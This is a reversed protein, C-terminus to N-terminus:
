PKSSRTSGPVSPDPMRDTGLVPLAHRFFDLAAQQRGIVRELEGIRAQATALAQGQDPPAPPPTPALAAALRRQRLGPKPGRKHCLGGAGEARWLARWTYLVKRSIGVDRAVAALAEGAELRSIAAQKVSPTFNRTPKRPKDPM